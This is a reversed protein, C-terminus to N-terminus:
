ANSLMKLLLKQKHLKQHNQLTQLTKYVHAYMSLLNFVSTFCWSNMWSSRDFSWLSHVIRFKVLTCVRLLHSLFLPFIIKMFFNLNHVKQILEFYLFFNKQLNWSYFHMLGGEMAMWDMFWGERVDGQLVRANKYINYVTFSCCCDEGTECFRIFNFIM